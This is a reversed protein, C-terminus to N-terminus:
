HVRARRAAADEAVYIVLKPPHLLKMGRAHITRFFLDLWGGYAVLMRPREDEVRAVIDDIPLLVSAFHRRPRLPMLLQQEYFALVKKMTPTEVAVYLERPRTTVGCARLVPDWEREGFAINALLSRRDHYIEIPSGTSGTTLFRVADRAAPADSVFRRPEARVLERDLLPLKELDAATCIERPDLQSSAFLERYYPVSDAAYAVLQRVRRDRLAAIAEASM